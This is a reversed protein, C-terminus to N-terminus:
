NLPFTTSFRKIKNNYLVKWSEEAKDGNKKASFNFFCFNDLSLHDTKM